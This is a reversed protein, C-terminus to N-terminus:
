PTAPQENQKEEHHEVRGEAPGFVSRRALVVKWTARTQGAELENNQEVLDQCMSVIHETPVRVAVSLAVGADLLALAALGPAVGDSKAWKFVEGIMRQVLFFVEQNVQETSLHKAEETTM